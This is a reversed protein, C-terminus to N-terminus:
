ASCIYGSKDLRTNKIRLASMATGDANAGCCPDPPPTEDARLLGVEYRCPLHLCSVIRM